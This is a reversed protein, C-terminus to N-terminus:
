KRIKCVRCPLLLTSATKRWNKGFRAGTAGKIGAGACCGYVKGSRYSAIGNLERGCTGVRNCAEAPIRFITRIPAMGKYKRKFAKAKKLGRENYSTLWIEDFCDLMDEYVSLMYGNTTLRLKEYKLKVVERMIARFKSHATPEGGTIILREVKGLNKAIRIIEAPKMEREPVDVFCDPCQLNCATTIYLELSHIM